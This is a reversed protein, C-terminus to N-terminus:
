LAVWLWVKMDEPNLCHRGDSRKMHRNCSYDCGLSSMIPVIMMVWNFVIFTMSVPSPTGAGRDGLYLFTCRHSILFCCSCRVESIIADLGGNGWAYDGPNGHLHVSFFYLLFM